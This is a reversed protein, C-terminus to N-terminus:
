HANHRDCCRLLSRFSERQPKRPSVLDARPLGRRSIQRGAQDGGVRHSDSSYAICGRLSYQRTRFPAITGDFETWSGDLLIKAEGVLEDDTASAQRRTRIHLYQQEGEVEYVTMRFEEDWVARQPLGPLDAKSRTVPALRWSELRCTCALM